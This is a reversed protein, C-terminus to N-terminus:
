TRGLSDGRQCHREAYLRSPGSLHLAWFVPLGSPEEVSTANRQVPRLM